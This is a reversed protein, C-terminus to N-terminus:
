RFQIVVGSKAQIRSYTVRDVLNGDADALVITGGSNALIVPSISQYRRFRNPSVIGSITAPPRKTDSITWGRLDVTSDGFNVVDVYENGDDEGAPNPMARYIYVNRVPVMSPPDRGPSTRDADHVSASFVLGTEGEVVSVPVRYASLDFDRSRGKTDSIADPDQAMIFARAQLTGDLGIFVLVKFFATPIQAPPSGIFQAPGWRRTYIPGTFTSIRYTSDIRLDKVFDERRLSIPCIM